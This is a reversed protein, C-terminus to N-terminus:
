KLKMKPILLFNHIPNTPDLIAMLWFSNYFTVVIIDDCSLVIVM